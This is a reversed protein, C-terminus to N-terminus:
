LALRHTISYESMIPCLFARWRSKTVLQPSIQKALELTSLSQKYGAKLDRVRNQWDLVIFFLDSISFFIRTLVYVYVFSYEREQRSIYMYM